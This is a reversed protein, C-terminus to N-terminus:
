YMPATGIDQFGGGANTELLSLLQWMIDFSLIGM